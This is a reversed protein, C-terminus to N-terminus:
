QATNSCWVMVSNYFPIGAFALGLGIAFLCCAKEKADRRELWTKDDSPLVHCSFCQSLMCNNWNSHPFRTSPMDSSQRQRWLHITIRTCSSHNLLVGACWCHWFFKSYVTALNLHIASLSPNFVLSWYHHMKVCCPLNSLWRIWFSGDGRPKEYHMM